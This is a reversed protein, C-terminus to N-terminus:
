SSLARVYRIFDLHNVNVLGNTLRLFEEVNKKRLDDPFICIFLMASTLAEINYLIMKNEPLEEVLKFARDKMEKNFKSFSPDSLVGRMRELSVDRPSRLTKKGEITGIGQHTPVIRGPDDRDMPPPSFRDSEDDVLYQDDDSYYEGDDERDRGDDEFEDDEYEYNQDVHVDEEFDSM